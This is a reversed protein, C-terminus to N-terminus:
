SKSTDNKLLPINIGVHFIKQMVTHGITRMGSFNFHNQSLDFFHFHRFLVDNVIVVCHIRRRPSWVNIVLLSVSDDCFYNEFYNEFIHM